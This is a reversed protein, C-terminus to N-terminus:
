FPSKKEATNTASHVNFNTRWFPDDRPFKAKVRSTMERRLKELDTEGKITSKIHDCRAWIEETCTRYLDKQDQLELLYKKVSAVEADMKDKTRQQCEAALTARRHECLLLRKYTQRWEFDMIQQEYFLQILKKGMAVAEEMYRPDDIDVVQFAYKEDGFMRPMPWQVRFYDESRLGHLNGTSPPLYLKSSLNRTSLYSPPKFGPLSQSRGLALTNNPSVDVM